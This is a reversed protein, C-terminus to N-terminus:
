FLNKFQIMDYFSFFHKLGFNGKPDIGEFYVALQPPLIKSFSPIRHQFEGLELYLFHKLGDNLHNTEERFFDFALQNATQFDEKERLHLLIDLFTASDAALKSDGFNTKLFQIISEIQSLYGRSFLMMFGINKLLKIAFPDAKLKTLLDPTLNPLYSPDILLQAADFEPCKSDIAHLLLDVFKEKATIKSLNEKYEQSNPNKHDLELPAEDWWLLLNGQTEGIKIYFFLGMMALDNLVMSPDTEPFDLLAIINEFNANLYALSSNEVAESFGLLILLTEFYNFRTNQLMEARELTFAEMSYELNSNNRSWLLFIAQVDLNILHMKLRPHPFLELLSKLNESATKFEFYDQQHFATEAETATLKILQLLDFNRSHDPNKIHRRSRNSTKPSTQDLAKQLSSIKQFKPQLTLDPSFNLHSIIKYKESSKIQQTLSKIQNQIETKQKSTPLAKAQLELEDIQKQGSKRLQNFNFPKSTTEPLNLVFTNSEPFSGAKLRSFFRPPKLRTLM